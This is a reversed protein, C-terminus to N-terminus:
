GTIPMEMRKKSKENDALEGFNTSETIVEQDTRELDMAADEGDAEPEGSDSDEDLVRDCERRYSDGDDERIGDPSGDRRDEDDGPTRAPDMIADPTEMEGTGGAAKFM